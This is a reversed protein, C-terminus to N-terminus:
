LGPPSTADDDYLGIQQLACYTVPLTPSVHVSLPYMSTSLTPSQLAAALSTSARTVARVARGSERGDGRTTTGAADLTLFEAARERLADVLAVRADTARGRARVVREFAEARTGRSLEPVDALARDIAAADRLPSLIRRVFSEASM